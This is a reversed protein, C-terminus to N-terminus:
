ATTVIVLDYNNYDVSSKKVYDCALIVVLMWSKMTNGQISIRNVDNNTEKERVVMIENPSPLLPVCSQVMPKPEPLAHVSPTLLQRLRKVDEVTVDWIDYMDWEDCDEVKVEEQKM